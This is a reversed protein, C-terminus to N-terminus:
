LARIVGAVETMNVEIFISLCVIFVMKWIKKLKKDKILKVKRKPKGEGEEEGERWPLIQLLSAPVMQVIIVWKTFVDYDNNEDWWM